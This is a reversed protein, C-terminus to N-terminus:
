RRQKNQDQAARDSGQLANVFDRMTVNSGLGRAASILGQSATQYAALAQPSASTKAGAFARAWRSTAQASAPAALIRALIGGGIAASVTTTPATFLGGLLALLNVNQATGSPNGFRKGVDKLRQSILMIDDLAQRQPGANGFLIAKAQPTYKAWQTTFIDPSFRGDSGIGLNRIVSGALDGKDQESLSRVLKALSQIDARGGSQAYSDITRFLAEDSKGKGVVTDALQQVPGKPVEMASPETAKAVDAIAQRDVPGQRLTEAYDLMQQRQEATFLRNAVDRGSGNLFEGIDNAIKAPAKPAVGEPSQTLRNWVGGRLAEVVGPDGNTAEALRTLLRSAVGKAGVQGSGVILNAVEQPTVEGTVVRNILKGADDEENFFRNRWNTNAERAQRFNTLASEDGSLLAREFADSQWNDFHRMVTSAARRDADNSAASRFFGLRKRAQEIAQVNVGAVWEGARPAPIRGGIELNSLRQLEQMMRNAAPTLQPDDAIVGDQALADRVRNHVGSVEDARVSADAEGARAYLQEKRARAERESTQLREILRQGMDQPTVDPGVARQTEQGAQAERAAIGQNANEVDTAWANRVAEDSRRASATAAGTEAEAEAGVQRGIRSAVNPGTGAGYQDAVGRTAEGLNEILRGTAQPIADGVVPVNRVGQGVRQVAMSDSAIARPVEVPTGTAASLRDAATVIERGPSPPLEPPLEGGPSFRALGTVGKKPYKSLVGVATEAADKGMEYVEAPNDKAAQEPNVLTGVGHLAKAFPVGILPRAIGSPIAGVIQLAGGALKGGTDLIGGVPGAKVIDEGYLSKLKRAGSMFQSGIESPIDTVARSWPVEEKRKVLEFGEPLDVAPAAGADEAPARSGGPEVLVFGEPLTLQQEAM